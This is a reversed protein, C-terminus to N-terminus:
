PRERFARVAGDVLALLGLVLLATAVLWLVTLWSPQAEGRYASVRAAAAGVFLGLGALFSAM